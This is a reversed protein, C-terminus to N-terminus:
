IFFDRKVEKCLFTEIYGKDIKNFNTQLTM